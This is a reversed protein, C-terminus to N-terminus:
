GRGELKRIEADIFMKEALLEEFDGGAAASRERMRLEAGIEALRQRFEKVKIKRIGDEMLRRPDRKSDGRFEPSTGREVIFNRLPSGSIRSLLADMGSEDNVFCEELAIFLEKAAPDEIERMRLAKRFEPYLTQNVSVVTLLFLEDNMRIQQVSVSEAPKGSVEEPVSKEGAGTHEGAHGGARWRKYDTFVAERDVRYADAAIGICDDRETEGDLAELYPFLVALARKKGEPASVDYLSGGRSILYEFDTICCQMNKKLIEPGYKLLIDAPDKFEASDLDPAALACSLGNKRCTIIGKYAANQGAEDTDFVLVAKEAWRRLLKAQDGTFATGLPAVANEIGAQHLAILDMYGEAVYVTKTQRIAPLALDIAYLTQGKKYTELEPSNIYKPPQTERPATTGDSQVAGPLARGGFAVTRGQRDAIPFMLRGAFLPAGKYRASFLGSTDLFNESYGKQALFRYLFGRDAPAYGLRFREIMAASIGRSGIYELAAKGEPKERLFHQFTVSTRRYLEFLEEKRANEREWDRDAGEGGDEYVIRVGTKRALTKVAEPYTLKDMEMVFDIVSGGKHCGFCYYTKREDNVTFSPTKEHHFPCLGWYRGGRKELRVYDEAVAVADLRDNLEQITSKAIFAM